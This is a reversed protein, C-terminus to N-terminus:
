FHECHTSRRQLLDALLTAVVLDATTGPNLGRHKLSADFAILVSRTAPDLGRVLRPTLAAAERMVAAAVEVGQKRAIHSDPSHALFAMHLATVADSEERMTGRAAALQPLGFQFVEAFGTVYAHAIRDRSAALGMAEILSVTPPAAVDAEASAGLGGPNARRIAAYVAAADAPGLSALVGALRAELDGGAPLLAAAALPVALLLIGLNTNCGAAAMSAEVAALIRAGIGLGPAAIWPAAAEAAREFDGVTMAHGAAHVHVNGPKLAALEARCAALFADRVDSEALATM